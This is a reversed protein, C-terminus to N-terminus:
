WGQVQQKNTSKTKVNQLLKRADEKQASSAWEYKELARRYMEIMAPKQTLWLRNKTTDMTELVDETTIARKEAYGVSFRTRKIVGEIEAGTWMISAKALAPIDLNEADKGLHIKWIAARENIAPFGVFVIMDFRGDRLMEPPLGDIYNAAAMLFVQPHMEQLGTLFEGHVRDTTGSDNSTNSGSADRGFEDIWAVVPAMANIQAFAARMNAESQGIWKNMMMSVGFKVLDLDLSAAVAKCIASKGCGPVGVLLIRRVPEIGYEEVEEPNEFAHAANRIIKKLNDLGGITDLGNRPRWIELMGNEKILTKRYDELFHTDLKNNHLTSLSLAENIKVRSLGTLSRVMKKMKQKTDVQDSFKDSKSAYEIVMQTIEAEAPPGIETSAVIGSMEGPIEGGTSIFVLQVPIKGADNFKIANMYERYVRILVDQFGKAAGSPNYIMMLAPEERERILHLISPPLEEINLWLDPRVEALLTRYENLKRDYVQLGDFPDFLFLEKDSNTLCLTEVEHIDQSQVWVM